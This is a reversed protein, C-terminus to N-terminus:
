RMIFPPYGDIDGRLHRAMLLSQAYPILGIEIKEDLYGHIVTEKKRKQYASIIIKRVDPILYVAGNEKIVFDTAKVVHNNVLTLVFRDGLYPRLEEMLDLALSARGPRNRHLFGAQPDMGVTEIASEVDHAILVYVFSLLANMRDLPPHKSRERFYFGDKQSLILSDLCSFYYKSGIGEYGRVENIDKAEYRQLDKIIDELLKLHLVYEDTVLNDHDRAFRRLVSRCNILKGLVISKSIAASREENEYLAYQRHRLLINGSIRGTVRALFRGNESVFSLGINNECCMQMLKPSAGMYGFCVIGELNHAPVRAAEKGEILIVVNDGDKSLYANPNTVYLVNLLKRM